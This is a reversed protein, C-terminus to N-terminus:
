VRKEGLTAEPPAGRKIEGLRVSVCLDVSLLLLVQASSWCSVERSTAISVYEQRQPLHTAAATAERTWMASKNKNAKQPFLGGFLLGEEEAASDSTRQQNREQSRRTRPPWFM